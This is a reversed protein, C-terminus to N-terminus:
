EAQPFDNGIVEMKNNFLADFAEQSAQEIFQRQQEETGAPVTINITNRVDVNSRKSQSELFRLKAEPELRRFAERFNRYFEQDEQAVERRVNAVIEPKIFESVASLGTSAADLVPPSFKIIFDRFQNSLKTLSTDFKEAQKTAESFQKATLTESEILRDLEDNRINVLNAFNESGFLIKALARRNAENPVTRLADLFLRFVDKTPLINGLSDRIEIRAQRAQSLLEGTGAKAQNLQDAFFKVGGLFEREPLQLQASAKQLGLLEEGAIGISRALQDTSIISDAISSATKLFGTVFGAVAGTALTLRTKFGLITRNFNEVGRKDVEFSLKTVLQRVVAM